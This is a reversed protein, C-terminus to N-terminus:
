RRGGARSGGTRNGAGHELVGPLWRGALSIAWNGLGITTPSHDTEIARAIRRATAEASPFRRWGISELDMGLKKHMGTKIAGPRICQVRVQGLLEHRLNRAVSELAAKTAAYVAYEPSPLGSAVSGIFVIKGHARRLPGLLARTMLVPTELNLRILRDIAAPDEDEIPGYYGAGANHILLDIQNIGALEARDAIAEAAGPEALDVQWYPHRDFIPDALDTKPRRGILALAGGAADYQRALALGLGDTAGTIVIM